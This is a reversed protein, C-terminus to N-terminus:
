ARSIEGIYRARRRTEKRAYIYIRKVWSDLGSVHSNDQVRRAENYMQIWRSIKMKVMGRIWAVDCENLNNWYNQLQDRWRARLEKWNMQYSAALFPLYYKKTKLIFAWQNEGTNSIFM